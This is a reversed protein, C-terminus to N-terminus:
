SVALRLIGVLPEQDTSTNLDGWTWYTNPTFDHLQGNLVMAIISFLNFILQSLLGVHKKQM